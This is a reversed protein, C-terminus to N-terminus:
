HSLTYGLSLSLSPSGKGERLSERGREESVACMGSSWWRDHWRAFLSFACPSKVRPLFFVCLVGCFCGSFNFLECGSFLPANRYLYLLYLLSLSLARSRACLPSLYLSLRLSVTWAFNTYFTNKGTERGGPWSLTHPAARLNREARIKAIHAPNTRWALLCTSMLKFLTALATAGGGSCGPSNAAGPCERSESPCTMSSYKVSRRVNEWESRFLRSHLRM